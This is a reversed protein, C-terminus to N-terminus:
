FIRLDVKDERFHLVHRKLIKVLRDFLRFDLAVKKKPQAFTGFIRLFRNSWGFMEGFVHALKSRACSTTKQKGDRALPYCSDM